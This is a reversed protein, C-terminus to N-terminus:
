PKPSSTAGSFRRTMVESCRQAQWRMKTAMFCRKEDRSRVARVGKRTRRCTELLRLDNAVLERSGEHAMTQGVDVVKVRADKQKLKCLGVRLVRQENIRTEAAM